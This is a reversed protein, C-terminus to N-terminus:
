GDQAGVEAFSLIQREDEVKVREGGLLHNCYSGLQPCLDLELPYARRVSSKAAEGSVDSAM